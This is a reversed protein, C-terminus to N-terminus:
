RKLVKHVLLRGNVNASLVYLGPSLSSMSMVQEHRRAAREFRLEHLSRGSADLLQVTAPAPNATQVVVQLRDDVPNPFVTLRVDADPWAANPENPLATVITVANDVSAPEYPPVIGPTGPQDVAIFTIEHKTQSILNGQRYESIILAVAYRGEQTPADWVLEGTRANLKFTGQRTLDNPFQYSNVPQQNCLDSNLATQPKTLTYAVSDGDAETAALSLVARQNLTVRFGSAPTTPTPTLNDIVTTSIRTTITFLQFDARLINQAITRNPISASLTYVGPGAYTHTTQYINVSAARDSTLRRATRQVIQTQGDGFCIMYENSDDAAAKGGAEDMYLTVTIEYTSATTSISRAQIYGGILHTAVAIQVSFLLLTTSILIKM